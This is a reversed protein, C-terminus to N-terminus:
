GIAIWPYQAGEGGIGMNHIIDFGDDYINFQHAGTGRSTTREGISMYNQGSWYRMYTNMFLTAEANFAYPLIAGIRDTNNTWGGVGSLELVVIIPRFTLGRVSAKFYNESSINRTLTARGSALRAGIKLTGVKGFISIGEPINGEVFNSDSITVFDNVGDRYGESARLRLTTGNVASSLAATDGARDVMTGQKGAITTGALVKSADFLVPAVKGAGNHYGDLIMQETQGPTINQAGRNPMMGTIKTGAAGYATKTALIDASVATADSTDPGVPIAEIKEAMEAFTVHAVTPVGKDTIAAAVLAKGDSVNTFVENIAGVLSTKNNSALQELDGINEANVNVERGLENLDSPMVTDGMQWNTKAM